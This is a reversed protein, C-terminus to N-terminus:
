LEWISSAYDRVTVDSSFVGSRAINMLSSQQWSTANGFAVDAAAQADFYAAADSLVVYIDTASTLIPLLPRFLDRDGRAFHGSALSEVARNPRPHSRLIDLPRYGSAHLAAVQDADLGFRFSHEPGVADFLRLNTATPTGITLAGNMMMKFASTGGTELNPTAIQEGLDAATFLVEATTVRHDPLFVVRMYDRTRPDANVVEGVAHILKVLLKAIWYRPSAKGSFLFTRPSPPQTGDEILSWYRDIVHLVNLLQRKAEHIRTAHVDFLSRPDIAVGTLEKVLRAAATKNRLKINALHELFTSHDRLNELESLQEPHEIWSSGIMKTILMALRRNATLLWRRHSVGPAIAYTRGACARAVGGAVVASIGTAAHSGALALRTMDVAGNDVIAADGIGHTEHLFRRNIEEIIELHRPVVRELLEVPWRECAERIVTHSTFSHCAVTVDWAEDWSARQEDVLIRMLEAVALAGHSENLHIAASLPLDTINEYRMRHRQVIDRMACAALFYEQILRLEIGQVDGPMVTPYLVKSISEATVQEQTARLYDGAMFMQLDLRESSEASYLRLRNVTKGGWGAILLDHPVGVIVRYDVWRPAYVGGPEINRHVTGYLPLYIAHDRRESVWPQSSSWEDPREFQFGNTLIQRFLGLDFHIGYALVPCGATTAAELLSAAAMGFTGSGIGPDAELSQLEDLDAGLETLVAKAEDLLGLSVLNATLLRGLLYEMSIFSVVKRAHEREERVSTRAIDHLTRQVAAALMALRERQTCEAWTLGKVIRLSAEIADRLRVHHFDSM